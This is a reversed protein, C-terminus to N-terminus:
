RSGLKRVWSLWEPCGLKRFPSFLFRFQLYLTEKPAVQLVWEAAVRTTIEM